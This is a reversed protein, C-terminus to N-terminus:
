KQDVVISMKAPTNVTLIHDLNKWVDSIRIAIDTGFIDKPTNGGGPCLLHQSSGPQSKSPLKSHLAAVVAIDVKSFISGHCLLVHPLFDFCLAESLLVDYKEVSAVEVAASSHLSSSYMNTKAPKIRSMYGEGFFKAGRQRLDVFHESIHSVLTSAVRFLEQLTPEYLTALPCDRLFNLTSLLGNTLYALPPFRLLLQPYSLVNGDIESKLDTLDWDHQAYLPMLQEASEERFTIKEHTLVLLFNQVVSNFDRKVRQLLIEEFLNVCRSTFDCGVSGLRSALFVCQEMISRMSAGDDLKLTTDRLEELLFSIQRSVWSQLTLQSSLGQNEVVEPQQEVTRQVFLAQFQTVISFLATRRVELMEICRGYPGLTKYEKSINPFSVEDLAKQMWVTRAELFDMQLKIEFASQFRKQQSERDDISHFAGAKDFRELALHRDISLSNLKRLTEMIQMQKPLAHTETLQVLLKKTLVVLIAHVDNVIREIVGHGGRQEEVAKVESAVLHRRELGNVFNALDVAEDLFGNRSCADVLQPLELLELLRMHHQLIKRNRKHYNVYSHVSDKFQSCTASLASLGRTLNASVDQLM